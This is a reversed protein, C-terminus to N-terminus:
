GIRQSRLDMPHVRKRVTAAQGCGEHNLLPFAVHLHFTFFLLYSIDVAPVCAGAYGNFM